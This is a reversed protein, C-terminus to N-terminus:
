HQRGLTSFFNGTVYEVGLTEGASGAALSAVRTPSIGILDSIVSNHDRYQRYNQASFLDMPPDGAYQWIFQVLRAPDRVPLDRLVLMNVLSFIATNAGIALALTLLAVSTFVPSRRLLRLGYRADQTSDTLWSLARQHTVDLGSGRLM